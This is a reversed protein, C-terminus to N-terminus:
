KFSSSESASLQVGILILMEFLLEGPGLKLAVNCVVYRFDHNTKVKICSCMEVYVAVLVNM